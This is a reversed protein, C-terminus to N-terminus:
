TRTQRVFIDECKYVPFATWGTKLCVMDRPSGDPLRFGTDCVYSCVSEYKNENTCVVNGNEPNALVSCEIEKCSPLPRDWDVYEPSTPIQICKRAYQQDSAGGVLEYGEYCGYICETGFPIGNSTSCTHYGNLPPNHADCTDIEVNINVRCVATNQAPACDRATYTFQQKGHGFSSPLYPNYHKVSCGGESAKPDNWFKAVPEIARKTGLDNKYPDSNCSTYPSNWKPPTTDVGHRTSLPFNFCSLIFFFPHITVVLTTKLPVTCYQNLHPNM